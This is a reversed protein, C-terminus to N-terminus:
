VSLAFASYAALILSLAVRFDLTISYYTYLILERAGHVAKQMQM